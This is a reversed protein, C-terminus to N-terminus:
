SEVARPDVGDDRDLRGACAACSEWHIASVICVECVECVGYAPQLMRGAFILDIVGSRVLFSSPMSRWLRTGSILFQSFWSHPRCRHEAGAVVDDDEDVVM